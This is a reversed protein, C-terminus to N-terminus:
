STTSLEAKRDCFPLAFTSSTVVPYRKFFSSSSRYDGLTWGDDKLKSGAFREYVATLFLKKSAEAFKKETGDTKKVFDALKAKREYWEGLTAEIRATTIADLMRNPDTKLRDVDPVGGLWLLLKTFFGGGDVFRRARGDHLRVAIKQHFKMEVDRGFHDVFHRIKMSVARRGEDAPSKGRRRVRHLEAGAPIETGVHLRLRVDHAPAKELGLRVGVPKEGVRHQLEARVKAVSFEFEAALADGLARGERLFVDIQDKRSVASEKVRRVHLLAKGRHTEVDRADFREYLSAACKRVRVLLLRADTVGPKTLGVCSPLSRM